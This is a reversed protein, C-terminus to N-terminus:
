QKRWKIKTILLGGVSGVVLGLGALAVVFIYFTLHPTGGKYNFLMFSDTLVAAYIAGNWIGQKKTAGLWIMTIGIVAWPLLALWTRNFITVSSIYGVILGVVGAMWPKIVFRKVPQDMSHLLIDGISLGRGRTYTRLM